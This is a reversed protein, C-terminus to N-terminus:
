GRLQVLEANYQKKIIEKIDKGNGKTYEISDVMDFWRHGGKNYRQGDWTWATKKEFAKRREATIDETGVGVLTGDEVDYERYTMEYQVIKEVERDGMMVWQKWTNVVKGYVKVTRYMM